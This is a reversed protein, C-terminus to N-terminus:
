FNTQEQQNYNTQSCHPLKRVSIVSGFNLHQQQITLLSV